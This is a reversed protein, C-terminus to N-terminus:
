HWGYLGGSGSANWRLASDRLKGYQAFNGPPFTAGDADIRAPIIGKPLTLPVVPVKTGNRAARNMGCVKVLTLFRLIFAGSNCRKHRPAATSRFCWRVGSAHAIAARARVSPIHRSQFVGPEYQQSECDTRDAAYTGQQQNPKVDSIRRVHDCRTAESVPASRLQGLSAARAPSNASSRSLAPNWACVM